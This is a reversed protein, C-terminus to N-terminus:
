LSTENVRFKPCKREEKKGKKKKRKKGRNKWFQQPRFVELHILQNLNQQTLMFVTFGICVAIEGGCRCNEHDM